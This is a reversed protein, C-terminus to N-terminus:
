GAGPLLKEISVTPLSKSRTKLFGSRIVLSSPLHYFNLVFIEWWPEFHYGKKWQNSVNKIIYTAFNINEFKKLLKHITNLAKDISDGITLNSFHM